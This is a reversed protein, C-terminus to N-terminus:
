PNMLTGDEDFVQIAKTPCSQAAAIITEDDIAGDEFATREAPGSNKAGGQLKMVAKNEGDLVFVGPANVVCTGAGICLDRNVVVKAVRKKGDAM